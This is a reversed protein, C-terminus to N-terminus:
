RGLQGPAQALCPQASPTVAWPTQQPKDSVKISRLAQHNVGPTHILEHANHSPAPGGERRENAARAVWVWVVSKQEAGLWLWPVAWGLGRGAAGGSAGQHTGIAPAEQSDQGWLEPDLAEAQWWCGRGEGALRVAPATPAGWICLPM